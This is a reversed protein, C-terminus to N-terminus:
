LFAGDSDIAVVTLLVVGATVRAADCLELM